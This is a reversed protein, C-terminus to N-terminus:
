TAPQHARRRAPDALRMRMMCAHMIGSSERRRVKAKTITSITLRYGM